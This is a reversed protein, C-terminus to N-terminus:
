RPRNLLINDLIRCHTLFEGGPWIGKSALSQIEAPGFFARSPGPSAQNLLDFLLYDFKEFHECPEAIRGARHSDMIAGAITFTMSHSLLHSIGFAAPEPREASRLLRIGHVWIASARSIISPHSQPTRDDARPVSWDNHYHAIATLAVMAGVVVLEPNRNNRSRGNLCLRVAALDCTVEEIQSATLSSRESTPLTTDVAESVTSLTESSPRQLTLAHMFEHSIVFEEACESISSVLNDEETSAPPSLFLGTATIEPGDHWEIAEANLFTWFADIDNTRHQLDQDYVALKAGHKGWLGTWLLFAKTYIHFLQSLRMDVAIFNAGSMSDHHFGAYASAKHAIGVYTNMFIHHDSSPAYDCIQKVTDSVHTYNSHGTTAQETQMVANTDIRVGINKGLQKTCETLAEFTPSDYMSEFAM